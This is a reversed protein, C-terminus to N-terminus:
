QLTGIRGFIHGIRRRSNHIGHPEDAYYVIDSDSKRIFIHSRRLSSFEYYKPFLEAIHIDISMFDIFHDKLRHDNGIDFGNNGGAVECVFRKRRRCEESFLYQFLRSM